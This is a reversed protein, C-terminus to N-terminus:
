GPTSTGILQMAREGASALSALPPRHPDGVDMALHMDKTLNHGLYERLASACKETGPSGHRLYIDLAASRATGHELVRALAALDLGFLGGLTFGDHALALHAYLMLNNVIKAYQGAGVGGLHVIVSAYAAFVPHCRHFAADDGGVMVVLQRQEAGSAGGSVPADLLTVGHREAVNALRVCTDPHITSHVLVVSGPQMGMLLGGEATLVEDVQSDDGVCIAVVDSVTGLESLSEAVNAGSGYFPALSTARRAYLSTPIGAEILKQAM